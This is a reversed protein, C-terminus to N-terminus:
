ASDFQQLLLSMRRSDYKLCAAVELALVRTNQGPYIRVNIGPEVQVERFPGNQEYKRCMRRQREALSSNPFQRQDLFMFEERPSRLPARPARPALEPNMEASNSNMEASNSNMEVSNSEINAHSKIFETPDMYGLALAERKGQAGKAETYGRRYQINIKNRMEFHLHALYSGDAGGMTGLLEGRKVLQGPVVKFSELHAYLSEIYRMGGEARAEPYKHLIRVIKGWAKDRHVGSRADIDVAAVVIGDAISFISDGLDSNGGGRGNWDSGLHRGRSTESLFPSADRYGRSIAAFSRRGNRPKGVPFDFALAM